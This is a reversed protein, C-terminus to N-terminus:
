LAGVLVSLQLFHLTVATDVVSVDTGGSTVTLKEPLKVRTMVKCGSSDKWRCMATATMLMNRIKM